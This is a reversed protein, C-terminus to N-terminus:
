RGAGLVADDQRRDLRAAENALRGYRAAELPYGDSYWMVGLNTLVRIRESSTTARELAQEFHGRASRLEGGLMHIVGLTCLVNAQLEGLGLRETLELARSSTRVAEDLRGGFADLRAKEALVAAMGVSPESDELARVARALIEEAEAGRGARWAAHAALGAAEAAADSRGVAALADRAELLGARDGVAHFRARAHAFAILAHQDADAPLELAEGYFRLAAPYAGLARVETVPSFSPTARPTRSSM